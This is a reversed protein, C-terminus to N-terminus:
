TELPKRRLKKILWQRDSTNFMVFFGIVAAIVVTVIGKAALALLSKGDIFHVAGFSVACSLIVFIVPRIVDPYFTYWKTGLCKAGYPLTFVLNRIVSLLTSIGAVAYVGWDTLQLAAYVLGANLFGSGVVILSNLKLKNVVTFISYIVNTGGSIIVCGSALLSLMYLEHANQTPQWLEYFPVGCVILVIMPLNCIVGMIKMSQKLSAVLEERKGQAYLITFDPSFISAMTGIIGTIISPVTKSLSLVGMARASIFLNSILLDLGDLLLQGVRNILNWIGSAVLEVIARFDFYKRRFKLEPLLKNAYYVRFFVSYIGMALSAIGLFSVRPEFLVFLVVIVAMRLFNAEIGRLSDLYLKNTAFTAVTFVSTSVSILCNIFMAAFLLKVDAIIDAPIEILKDLYVVTLVSVITMFATLAVNAFFVSTYYRNAGEMDNRYIRVTIFRGALSNLAITILGAYSIFNNALGVFGNAEVGISKVIYPSLFFGIGFTIIYSVFSAIMNVATQKSKTM